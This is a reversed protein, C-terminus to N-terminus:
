NPWIKSFDLKVGCNLISFDCTEQFFDGVKQYQGDVWRYVKAKKLEPYVLIYNKVAEKQYLEFKLNEDRQASSASVIEVILEPTKTLKEGEHHCAVLVDPRVVSDDLCYWDLEVFAECKDCKSLQNEVLILIKKEIRQHTVGPSPSMAYPAGYILEWDGKWSEYDKVTYHASYALTM